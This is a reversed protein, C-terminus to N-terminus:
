AGVAETPSPRCPEGRRWCPKAAAGLLSCPRPPRSRRPPKQERVQAAARHLLSGLMNNPLSTRGSPVQFSAHLARTHRTAPREDPAQQAVARAPEELQRCVKLASWLCQAQHCLLRAPLCAASRTMSFWPPSGSARCASHSLYSGNQPRVSDMRGPPLGGPRRVVRGAAPAPAWGGSGGGRRRAGLCCRSSAARTMGRSSASQIAPSPSSSAPRCVTAPRSM